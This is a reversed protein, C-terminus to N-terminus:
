RYRPLSKTLNKRIVARRSPRNKNSKIGKVRLGRHKRGASTLGRAERHKMTPRCIWNM